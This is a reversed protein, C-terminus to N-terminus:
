EFDYIVVKACNPKFSKEVFAKHDPHDQYIDQAERDKFV